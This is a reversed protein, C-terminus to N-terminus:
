FWWCLGLTGLTSKTEITHGTQSNTGGMSIYALEGQLSLRPTFWLRGRAGVMGGSLNTLPSIPAAYADAFFEITKPFRLFPLLNLFDDWFAWLDTSYDLGASLFMGSNEGFSYRKAGILVGLGSAREYIGSPVRYRLELSALELRSKTPVSLAFYKAGIDWRQFDWSSLGSRTFLRNLHASLQLSGVVTAGSTGQVPFAGIGGDLRWRRRGELSVERTLIGAAHEVRLNFTTPTEVTPLEFALKGKSFEIENLTVREVGALDLPWSLSTGYVKEPMDAFWSEPAFGEPVSSGEGVLSEFVIRIQVRNPEIEMPQAPAIRITARPLGLRVIPWLAKGDACSWTGSPKLECGADQLIKRSENLEGVFGEVSQVKIMLLSGLLSKGLLDVKVDKIDDKQVEVTFDDTPSEPRPLFLIPGSQLVTQMYLPFTGENLASVVRRVRRSSELKAPLASARLAKRLDTPKGYAQYAQVRSSTGETEKVAWMIIRVPVDQSGVKEIGRDFEVRAERSLFGYLATAGASDTAFHYYSTRGLRHGLERQGRRELKVTDLLARFREPFTDERYHVALRVLETGGQASATWPAGFVCLLISFLLSRSM